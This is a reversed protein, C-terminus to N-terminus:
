MKAVIDDVINDGDVHTKIVEYKINNRKNVYISLPTSTKPKFLYLTEVDNYNLYFHLNFLKYLKLLV